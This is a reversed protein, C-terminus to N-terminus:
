DSLPLGARARCYIGRGIWGYAKEAREAREGGELYLQGLLRMANCDALNAGQLLVDIAAARDQAVGTGTALLRGYRYFDPGHPVAMAQRYLAAAAAPDAPVGRGEELMSGLAVEAQGATRGVTSRYLEVARGDDRVIGQGSALSHALFLKGYPDDQAAAKALWDVAAARDADDGAQRLMEVGAAVQYMAKGSAAAQTMWHLGEGADRVVGAGSLYTRALEGQATVDGARAARRLWEVAEEPRPEPGSQLLKGLQVQGQPNGADAARRYWAEAQALDLTGHVGAQYWWGLRVQAAADGGEAKAMLAALEAAPLASGTPLTWVFQMKKWASRAEATTAAAFGHFHCGRVGAVAAQDLDAHGSSVDIRADIVDGDGDIRLALTTKGTVGRALAAAPWAPKACVALDRMLAAGAADPAAAHLTSHGIASMALVLGAKIFAPKNM